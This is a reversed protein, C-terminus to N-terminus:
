IREPNVHMQFAIYSWFFSAYQDCKFTTDNHDAVFASEAPTIIENNVFHALLDIKASCMNM